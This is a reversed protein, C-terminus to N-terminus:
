SCRLVFLPAAQTPASHSSEGFRFDANLRSVDTSRLDSRPRYRDKGLAVLEALEPRDERAMKRRLIAVMEAVLAAENSEREEVPVSTM